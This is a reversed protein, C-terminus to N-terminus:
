QSMSLKNDSLVVMDKEASSSGVLDTDLRYPNIPKNNGLHLVRCKGKRFKLCNKEAWRELRDIDKQLAACGELTDAVGGLETILLRAPFADTGKDLNNIFLQLLIMRLVQYSDFSGSVQWALLSKLVTKQKLEMCDLGTLWNVDKVKVMTRM